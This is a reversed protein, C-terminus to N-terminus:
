RAEKNIKNLRRLPGLLPVVKNQLILQFARLVDPYKKEYPFWFPESAAKDSCAMIARTHMFALLGEDGHYRGFGSAKVGGFPLRVQGFSAVVDNIMVQGCELRSALALGRRRDGAWVSANLGYIHDNALRVAEDEDAVKVVPLVPGFTEQKYIDMEPTVGTLLTPPYFQGPGDPRKGGTLLQAGADIAQAVHREVIPIQNAFIMPGIDNWDEPPGIRLKGLEAQLIEVFRDHVAEVVLLREVSICMQGCNVLGGWLAGKVARELNADQCVIMPDKGGLELEVPIPKAAAAAMVRRGTAVSGTFFLKDINADVLAAGTSGDGQVVQFVGEPLGIQGFLERILEGTIPTVESPKLVVGNGGILASIVPVVSLNFPYNWPSIVGIVGMPFHEVYSKRGPFLIPTPVKRRCLVKKAVKRYHNFFLPVTILETLLSDLMPKGTDQSIRRAYDEGHELIVSGLRGLIELRHELGADRWGPFAARAKEVVSQVQEPTSIPFEGLKEGTVPSYKEIVAM